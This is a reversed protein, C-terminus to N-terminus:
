EKETLNWIRMADEKTMQYCERRTYPCIHNFKRQVIVYQEVTKESAGFKDNLKSRLDAETKQLTAMTKVDTCKGDPGLLQKKLELIEAIQLEIGARNEEFSVSGDEGYPNIGDVNNKKKLARVVDEPREKEIEKPALDREFWRCLYQVSDMSAYDTVDHDQAPTGFVVTYAILEDQLTVRLSAYAIDRIRVDHGRKKADETIKKIKNDMILGM